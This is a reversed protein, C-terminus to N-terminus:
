KDFRMSLDIAMISKTIEGISVYDVGTEAIERVTDFSVNGSAELECCGDVREVALCMEDATFNDLMVREVKAAIAEELEDFNEVEVEIPLNPNNFRAMEVAQAIGGCAMIHNEKILYADYLGIRHNTAGGCSVAYKQALRLGPLTKRTDLIKCQTDSVALVYHSAITATASLTQLFNLACREASLLARASGTISCLKVGEEVSDGDNVFWEIRCNPDLQFFCEEFWDVGCIIADERCIVHASAQSEADVLEASVDGIGIDENLANAVSEYIYSQPIQM